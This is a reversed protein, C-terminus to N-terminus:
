ASLVTSSGLAETTARHWVVQNCCCTRLGNCLVVQLCKNILIGTCGSHCTRGKSIWILSPVHIKWIVATVGTLIWASIPYTEVAPKSSTKCTSRALRRGAVAACARQEVHGQAHQVWAWVSLQPEAVCHAGAKYHWGVWKGSLTFAFSTCTGLSM